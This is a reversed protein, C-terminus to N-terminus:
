FAEQFDKEILTDLVRQPEVQIEETTDFPRKLSVKYFFILFCLRHEFKEAVM